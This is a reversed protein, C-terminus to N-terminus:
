IMCFTEHLVTKLFERFNKLVMRLLLWQLHEVFRKKMPFVCEYSIVQTPTEKEIFNCAM